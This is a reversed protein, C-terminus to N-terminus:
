LLNKGHQLYKTQYQFDFATQNLFFIFTNLSTAAATHTSKYMICQSSM